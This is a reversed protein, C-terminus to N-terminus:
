SGAMSASVSHLGRNLRSNSVNRNPALQGCRITVTHRNVGDFYVPLETKYDICVFFVVSVSPFVFPIVAQYYVPLASPRTEYKPGTIM